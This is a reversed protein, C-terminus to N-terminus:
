PRGISKLSLYEDMGEVGQERGYGSKKYGGFPAIPNYAAGNIDVSGTRMRRAVSMARDIDASWVGGHLGYDSNNAIAVAEDDGDYSMVALVPGFVETQAIRSDPRVDALVTPRV